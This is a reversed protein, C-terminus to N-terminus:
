GHMSEEVQQALWDLLEARAARCADSNISPDRADEIRLKLWSISATFALPDDSVRAQNQLSQLVRSATEVLLRGSVDEADANADEVALRQLLDAALPDSSAVADHFSSAGLLAQYAALHVPDDFLAQHLLDAVQDPRHVALRLAEREPSDRDPAPRTASSRRPASREDAPEPRPGSALMTRLRDEPLQTRAAISLVYPDRVLENPHEAVVALAAEAVRVRGEPSRYDGGDLARDVRFGLFPRATRVAAALGEPDTQALDGPDVGAPLECVAVEIEHTREWEYFREAAAQGAKDADFALVVRRAFKRLLRVHDETLATGCTAVAREVGARHFGIVDTYGECVVVEDRNVIDTKGWNLGYLVKSKSYIPNEPSNQYKAGESGPLIRGGFGVPDGQADFIPFLIRGRFFDYQGGRKNLRGLGSETFDDNKIRLHHSLENWADPAWGIKYQRVLEGDFGRESRLYRRATAADPAELLRQHYFEVARAVADRLQSKRRRGEGQDADDYHLTIGAKNALFEVAGVFDLQEMERVFTIADGSKHSSFCYYVGKEDNVSFSPTKESTFPSLGMWQSGVKKLSTYQSILDRISVMDRVRQIDDDVIGM